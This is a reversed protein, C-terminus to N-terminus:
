PNLLDPNFFSEIDRAQELATVAPGDPELLASAAYDGIAAPRQGLRWRLKGRVFLARANAPNEELIRNLREMAEGSKNERLLAEVQEIDSM